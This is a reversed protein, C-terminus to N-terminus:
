EGEMAQPSAKEETDVGNDKIKKRVIKVGKLGTGAAKKAGGRPPGAALPVDGIPPSPHRPRDATHAHNPLRLPSSSPRLSASKPLPAFSSSSSPRPLPAQSPRTLQSQHPLPKPPLSPHHQTLISDQQELQRLKAEMLAIKDRTGERGSVSKLLSLATPRGAENVNRRYGFTSSSGVQDLPAQNAYTVVLRRGRLLKNHVAVLAKDADASDAYEIFAYGRPKGKLPGSKHFLYDLNSLKGFKSFIQILAHEDVTPHLNGVYLRDKLIQRTRISSSSSSSSSPEVPLSPYTLHTSTTEDILERDLPQSM